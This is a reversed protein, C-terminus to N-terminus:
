NLWFDFPELVDGDSDSVVQGSKLEDSRIEEARPDPSPHANIYENILTAISDHHFKSAIEAPTFGKTIGLHYENNIAVIDSRKLLLKVVSKHGHRAALGLATPGADYSGSRARINPDIAPQALLLEVILDHGNESANMLPTYGSKSKLNMPVNDRNLLQRALNDDGERAGNFLQAVGVWYTGDDKVGESKLLLQVVNEHGNRAARSLSTDAGKELSLGCDMGSELLQKVIKAHGNESARFIATRHREDQHLLNECREMGFKLANERGSSAAICLFRGYVKDKRKLGLNKDATLALVMSMQDLRVATYLASLLLRRSYNGWQLLKQLVADNGNHVAINLFHRAKHEIDRYPTGDLFWGIEHLNGTKILHSNNASKRLPFTNLSEDETPHFESMHKALEKATRCGIRSIHCGVFSCNFPRSHRSFHQDRELPNDFGKYFYQCSMQKCKFHNEGYFTRFRAHKENKPTLCRAEKELNYRVSELQTILYPEDKRDDTEYLGIKQRNRTEAIAQILRDFFDTTSFRNYNRRADGLPGDEQFNSRPWRSRIFTGIIEELMTGEVQDFLKSGANDVVSIYNNLHDVWHVVAYDHFAYWGNSIYDRISQNSLHIDFCEFALYGLCLSALRYDEKLIYVYNRDVLYSHEQPDSM